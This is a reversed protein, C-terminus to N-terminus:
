RRCYTCYGLSRCHDRQPASSAVQGPALGCVHFDPHWFVCYTGAYKCALPDYRKNRRCNNDPMSHIIRKSIMISLTNRLLTLCIMDVVLLLSPFASSAYIICTCTCRRQTSARSPTAHAIPLMGGCLLRCCAAAGSWTIM